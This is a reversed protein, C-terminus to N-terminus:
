HAYCLQVVHCQLESCPHTELESPKLYTRNILFSLQNGNGQMLLWSMKTHKKKETHRVKNKIAKALAIPSAKEVFLTPAHESNEKGGDETRPRKRPSAKGPLGEGAAQRASSTIAYSVQLGGHSSM